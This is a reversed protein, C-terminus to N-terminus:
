HKRTFQDAKFEPNLKVDRFYYEGMLKGDKDKITSGTQMWLETDFYSLLEAVGDAVPTTTAARFTFHPRDNLEKVKKIGLYEVKQTGKKFNTQWAKLTRMQNNYFGFSDLPYHGSSRADAGNPNRMVVFKGLFDQETPSCSCRARATATRTRARSTCFRRARGKWGTSISASPKERFYVDILEPPIDKGGIIEHKWLTLHYGTKVERRYKELTNELFGMLNKRLLEEMEENTSPPGHRGRTKGGRQQAREGRRGQGKGPAATALILCGLVPLGILLVPLSLLLRKM